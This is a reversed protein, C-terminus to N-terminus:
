HKGAADIRLMSTRQASGTKGAPFSIVERLAM